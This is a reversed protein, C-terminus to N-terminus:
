MRVCPRGRGVGGYDLEISVRGLEWSREGNRATEVISQREAAEAAGEEFVRMM